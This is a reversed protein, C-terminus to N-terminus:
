SAGDADFSPYQMMPLRPAAKRRTPPKAQERACTKDAAGELDRLMRAVRDALETLKRPLTGGDAAFCVAYPAGAAGSVRRRAARGPPACAGLELEQELVERQAQTLLLNGADHKRFVEFFLASSAQLQRASKHQGPYGQFV